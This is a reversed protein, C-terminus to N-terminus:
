KLDQREVNENYKQEEVSEKEGLKKFHAPVVHAWYEKM